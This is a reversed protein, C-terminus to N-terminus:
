DEGGPYGLAEHAQDLSMVIIKEKEEIAAIVTVEKKASERDFYGGWVCSQATSICIDFRIIFGDRKLFWGENSNGETLWRDDLIKNVAFLNFKNSSSFNVERLVTYNCHNMKNDLKEVIIDGVQSQNVCDDASTITSM